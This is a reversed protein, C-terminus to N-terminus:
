AAAIGYLSFTTGTTWNAGGAAKLDIRNIAETASGTSGRWLGAMTGIDTGTNGFRTLMTKYTTTNAYNFLNILITSYEPTSAISGNYNLSFQNQNASRYSVASSGSHTIRTISYSTNTTVNNLTMDFGAGATASYSGAIVLDTYTSPISTFSITASSGTGNATFIPVYTNGAAM